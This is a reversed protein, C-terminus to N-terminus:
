YRGHEEVLKLVFDIKNLDTGPPISVMGISMRARMKTAMNCLRIILAELEEYSADRIFKGHILYNYNRKLRKALELMHHDYEPLTVGDPTQPFIYNTFGAIGAGARLTDNNLAWELDDPSSYMYGIGLKQDYTNWVREIYPLVYTTFDELSLIPKTAYQDVLTAGMLDLGQDKALQVHRIAVKTTLEM